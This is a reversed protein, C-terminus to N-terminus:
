AVSWGRQWMSDLGTQLPKGNKREMISKEKSVIKKKVKRLFTCKFVKKRARDSM